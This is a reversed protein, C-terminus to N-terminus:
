VENRLAQKIIRKIILLSSKDPSPILADIKKLAAIAADARHVEEILREPGFWSTETQERSGTDQAAM